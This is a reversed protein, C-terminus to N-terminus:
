APYSVVLTTTCDPEVVRVAPQPVDAAALNVCWTEGDRDPHRPITSVPWFGGCPTEGPRAGSM